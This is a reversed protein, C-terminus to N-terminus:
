GQQVTKQYCTYITLFHNTPVMLNLLLLFLNFLLLFICYNTFNAM